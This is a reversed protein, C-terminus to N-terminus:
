GHFCGKAKCPLPYRTQTLELNVNEDLHSGAEKVYVYARTRAYDLGTVKFCRALILRYDCPANIPPVLSVVVQSGFQDPSIIIDADTASGVICNTRTPLLRPDIYVCKDKSDVFTFMDFLPSCTGEHFYCTGNKWVMLRVPKFDVLVKYDHSATPPDLYAKLDGLYIDTVTCLAKSATGCKSVGVVAVSQEPMNPPLYPSTIHHCGGVNTGKTDGIFAHGCKNAIEMESKDLYCRVNAALRGTSCMTAPLTVPQGFEFKTLYYSPVGPVGIFVSPGVVYGACVMPHSFPSLPRLTCVLRNPWKPNNNCTVVPWHEAVAPPIPYFNPLDPSYYYGLNHGVQTLPGVSGELRMQRLMPTVRPDAWVAGAPDSCPVVETGTLTVLRGDHVFLVPKPAPVTSLNFWESLQNHPDYIFVAFRARTIAVLARQRTLSKPTPLLVTVVDCTTGQASDITITNFRRDRHYPTLGTGYVQPESIFVVATSDCASLLPERYCVRIVDCLNQGFRRVVTLQERPMLDLAFCYTNYGVPTLQAGDGYAVIATKTLLRLLDVPNCYAAEDVFHKEGPTYGCSILRVIPGTKSPEPFHLVTSTPTVFRCQGIAIVLDLMAKHTPTYVVDNAGIVSLIHYTKGTGPPGTVFKSISCNSMVTPMVIGSFQQTVRVVSYTGDACSAIKGAIDRKVTITKGKCLYRGTPSDTVGNAVVMTEKVPPQYPTCDLLNVLEDQVVFTPNSCLNCMKSNVYHGCDYPVDCHPHMHSHFRCLTMGCAAVYVGFSGCHACQTGNGGELGMLRVAMSHFFGPGPFRIGDESACRHMNLVLDDFWEGDYISCACADLLIAAASGYYEFPSNAKMHYGLAAMVRARLPVLWGDIFRCGLFSPADTVCTKSADVQFGLMLSLHDTFWQYNPFQATAGYLVVDDSYIYVPQLEFCEQLTLTGSCFKKGIPHGLRLASLVMHQTYIILSYVTNAISTVADGSSLGGRKTVCGSQSSLVDHCCNLVYSPMYDECCGLEFLLNTTFWRVMAPTSRDCSALDTELCSGHISLPQFKSHGLCIPSGHGRMMFGSTVGSLASRYGLALLNNTGLITRTKPKSCYQKKLTVPTVSQWKELIARHVLSDIEPISQILQTPFRSGNIGARSNKAPYTSPTFVGPRKGVVAHLYDRVIKFVGPLVFGQTSLDFKALDSQAASETGHKTYMIPMDPHNDLYNLATLPLTPVYLESGVPVTTGVVSKGDVVPVGLPHYATSVHLPDQTDQPTTYPIDGFRTNRLVGEVRYPDGRVPHLRYPLYGAMNPADGRRCACAIVIQQSLEQEPQSAPKEFDWIFGDIGTNGPGWDSDFLGTTDCGSFLVDLLSPPNLRLMVAGDSLHNVVAHGPMTASISAERHGMIKLNVPGFGFTKHHFKIVKFADGTDVLGHRPCRDLGM